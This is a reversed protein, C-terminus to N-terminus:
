GSNLSDYSQQWFELEESWREVLHQPSKAVKKKLWDIHKEVIIRNPEITIDIEGSLVMEKLEALPINKKVVM